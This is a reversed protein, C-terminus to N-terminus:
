GLLRYIHFVVEALQEGGHVTGDGLGFGEFFGSGQQVGLAFRVEGGLQLECM